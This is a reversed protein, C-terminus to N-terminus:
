EHAGGQPEWCPREPLPKKSPCDKEPCILYSGGLAHQWIRDVGCEPCAPKGWGAAKFIQERLSV